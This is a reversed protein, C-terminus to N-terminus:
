NAKNTELDRLRAEIHELERKLDEMRAKLLDSERGAFASTAPPATGAGSLYYGCRPLGGRGRGVYPWPPSWGRFGFGMGGGYGGRWYNRSAM